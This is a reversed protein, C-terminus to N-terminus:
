TNPAADWNTVAGPIYDFGIAGGTGVLEINDESAARKGHKFSAKSIQWPKYFGIKNGTANGIANNNTGTTGGVTLQVDVVRGVQALDIFNWYSQYPRQATSRPNAGATSATGAPGRNTDLFGSASITARADSDDVRQQGPSSLATSVDVTSAEENFNVDNFYAGAEMTSNPVKIKFVVDRGILKM